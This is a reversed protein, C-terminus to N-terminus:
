IDWGLFHWWKGKKSPIHVVIDPNITTLTEVFEKERVPSILMWGTKRRISLRKFSAAASSIPNYTRELSAIDTINIICINFVFWIKLYLKNGSIVYRIGTFVLVMFLFAVITGRLEAYSHKIITPIVILLFLTVILGLLLVSIRSRYVKNESEM